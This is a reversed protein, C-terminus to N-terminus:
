AKSAKHNGHTFRSRQGLPNGNDASSNRSQRGRVPDHFKGRLALDSQILLLVAKAPDQRRDVLLAVLDFQARVVEDRRLGPPQFQDPPQPKARLQHLRIWGAPSREHHALPPEVRQGVPEQHHRRRLHPWHGHRRNQARHALEARPELVEQRRAAIIAVLAHRREHPPPQAALNELPQDLRQHASDIGGVHLLQAQQGRQRPEAFHLALVAAQDPRHALLHLRGPGRAPVDVLAPALYLM